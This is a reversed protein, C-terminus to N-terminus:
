SAPTMTTNGAVSLIHIDEPTLDNASCIKSIWQNLGDILVQNLEVLGNKDEVHHVRALIDAGLSVQPNIFSADAIMKGSLLNLLCLSIRTTGLDVALGAITESGDADAVHIVQWRDHNNILVCKLRYANKRLLDPLIKLLSFDIDVVDTKLQRKLAERLRDADATNDELTPSPLFVTKIM